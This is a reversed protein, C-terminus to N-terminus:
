RTWFSAVSSVLGPMYSEVLAGVTSPEILAGGGAGGSADPRVVTLLTADLERRSATAVSVLASLTAYGAKPEDARYLMAAHKMLAVARESCVGGLSGAFGGGLAAASSSLGAVPSGWTNFRPPGAAPSAPESEAEDRESDDACPTEDLGFDLLAELLEVLLDLKRMQGPLETLAKARRVEDARSKAAASTHALPRQLMYQAITALKLSRRSALLADCAATTPTVLGSAGALGAAASTAPAAAANADAEYVTGILQQVQALARRLPADRATAASLTEVRARAVSLHARADNAARVAEDSSSSAVAAATTRGHQEAPANSASSSDDALLASQWGAIMECPLPGHSDLKPWRAKCQWCFRAGCLCAVDVVEPKSGFSAGGRRRQEAVTCHVAHGCGKPCPQWCAAEALFCSVLNSEYRRRLENSLLRDVTADAVPLYLAGLSVAASGKPSAAGDGRPYCLPVAGELVKNRLHARLRAESESTGSTDEWAASPAPAENAAQGAAERADSSERLEVAAPRQRGGAGAAGAEKGGAAGGGQGQPGFGPGFLEVLLNPNADLANVVDGYSWKHHRLLAVAHPRTLGEVRARVGALQGRLHDEVEGTSYAMQTAEDLESGSGAAPTSLRSAAAPPAPPASPSKASTPPTAATKSADKTPTSAAAYRALAARDLGLARGMDMWVLAHSPLQPGGYAPSLRPDVRPLYHVGTCVERVLAEAQPVSFPEGGGYGGSRLAQPFDILLRAPDAVVTLCVLICNSSKETSADETRQRIAV